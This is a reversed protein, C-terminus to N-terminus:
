DARHQRDQTDPSERVDKRMDDEVRVAVRQLVLAYAALLILLVALALAWRLLRSRRRPASPPPSPM